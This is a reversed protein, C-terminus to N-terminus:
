WDYGIESDFFNCVGVTGAATGPQGTISSEVGVGGHPDSTTALRMNLKLTANFMPWHLQTASSAKSMMEGDVDLNVDGNVDGTRAFNSWYEVFTETLKLEEESFTYNAHNHFVFPVETAHCCRTECVKPLGYLPFIQSFSLIHQYRYVFANLGAANYMAALHNASCKFWYDTLVYSLSDRTDHWSKAAEQYFKTVKDGDKVFIADMLAPFLAEPLWTKIDFVFTAGEDQNTGLLVPVRAFKGEAVLTLPLGPLDDGTADVVPSWQMAFADEAHGGELIRDILGEAAAGSAKEGADMAVQSDISQLCTLNSISGCGTLSAFKAGFSLKQDEAKSYRFAAVNSEMIARQFLGKSAPSVLHVAVSMAGASEGWITLLQPNGGFNKINEITWKMAARQDQIAQNGKNEDTVLFGLVGLRYNTGVVCVDGRAAMETGDYLNLPGYNVGEDFAGGYIWFMVPYGAPDKSPVAPCYINLNLCDESQCRPGPKGDCPVDPNHHPQRCGPGNVTCNLPTVGWPARPQPPMFRNSGSTDAAFPVGRFTNIIVGTNSTETKGLVPGSGTDVVVGFTSACFITLMCCLQSAIVNLRLRCLQSM